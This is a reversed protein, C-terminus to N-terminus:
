ILTDLMKSISTKTGNNSAALHVLTKTVYLKGEMPMNDDIMLQLLSPIAGKEQIITASEEESYDALCNLAFTKAKISMHKNSLLDIMSPIIDDFTLNEMLEEVCQKTEVSIRNETLLRVILPIAGENVIEASNDDGHLALNGLARAVDCVVVHDEDSLLRVMLPIAGQSVMIAGNAKNNLALHGLIRAICSKTTTTKTKTKTTESLLSLLAPIAGEKTMQIADYYVLRELVEVARTKVESSTTKDSLLAVLVPIVGERELAISHGEDMSALNSLAYMIRAKEEMTANKDTLLAILAPIVQERIIVRYVKAKPALNALLIATNTKGETNIEPDSLLQILFPIGGERVIAVRNNAEDDDDDHSLHYLIFVVTSKGETGMPNNPQDSLLPILARIAGESVMTASLDDYYVLRALVEVSMSKVETSVTKDSLLHVLLPIVSEKTGDRNQKLDLRRALERVVNEQEEVDFVVERSEEILHSCQDNQLKKTQTDSENQDERDRKKIRKEQINSMMQTTTRKEQTKIPTKKKKNTRRHFFHQVLLRFFRSFFSTRRRDEEDRRRKTEEVKRRKSKENEDRRRKTKPKTACERM